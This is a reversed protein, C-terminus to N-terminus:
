NFKMGCYQVSGNMPITQEAVGRGDGCDYRITVDWHLPGIPGSINDITFNPDPNPEVDEFEESYFDTPFTVLAPVSSLDCSGAASLIRSSMEPSSFEVLFATPHLTLGEMVFTQGAMFTGLEIRFSGNQTKLVKYANSEVMNDTYMKAGLMSNGTGNVPFVLITSDTSPQDSSNHVVVYIKQLFPIQNASHVLTKGDNQSSVILTAGQLPACTRIAIQEPKLIRSLYDSIESQVFPGILWLVVIVFGTMLWSWPHSVYWVRLRKLWEWPKAM